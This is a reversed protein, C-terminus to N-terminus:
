KTPILMVIKDLQIGPIHGRPKDPKLILSDDRGIIDNLLDEGTYHPDRSVGKSFDPGERGRPLLPNYQGVDPVKRQLVNLANRVADQEEALQFRHYDLNSSFTYNPERRARHGDYFRWREPNLEADTVHRPHVDSPEKYQFVLKGPKDHDYNPNLFTLFRHEHHQPPENVLVMAVHGIDTRKEVQAFDPEYKGPGVRADEIRRRVQGLQADVGEEPAILAEPIRKRVLTEKVNLPPRKDVTEASPKEAQPITFVPLSPHVADEKPEYSAPGPLKKKNLESRIESKAM